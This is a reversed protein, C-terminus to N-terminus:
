LMYALFCVLIHAQACETIPRWVPCIPRDSKQIHFADEAETPQICARWLEEPSWDLVDSRLLYCGHSLRAWDRWRDFKSRRLGASGNTDAEVEVQFLGAARINDLLRGVRQAIALPNVKRLGRVTGCGRVLALYTHLEGDKERYCRRIYIGEGQM